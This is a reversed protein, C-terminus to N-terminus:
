RPGGASSGAAPPSPAPAPRPAPSGAGRRLRDAGALFALPPRLGQTDAAELDVWVEATHMALRLPASVGEGAHLRRAAEAATRGLLAQDVTLIVAAGRGFAGRDASLLPLNWSRARDLSEAFPVPTEGLGPAWDLIADAPGPADKALRFDIGAAAAAERRLATAAPTEDKWALLVTPQPRGPLLARVVAGWTAFPVEARVVACPLPPDPIPPLDRGGITVAVDVHVCPVRLGTTEDVFPAAAVRESAKRGFAVVFPPKKATLARAAEAWAQPTDPDVARRCVRPLSADELGRRLGDYAARLGADDEVLFAPVDCPVPDEPDGARASSPAVRVAVAAACALATARLLRSAARSLRV